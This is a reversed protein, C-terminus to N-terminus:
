KSEWETPNPAHPPRIVVRKIEFTHSYVMGVIVLVFLSKM